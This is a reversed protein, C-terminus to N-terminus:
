FRTADGTDCLGVFRQVNVRGFGRVDRAEGVDAIGKEGPGIRMNVNMNTNSTQETGLGVGVGDAGLMPDSAGNQAAASFSPPLVVEDFRRLKFPMHRPLCAGVQAEDALYLNCGLLFASNTDVFRLLRAMFGNLGLTNLGGRTTTLHSVAKM